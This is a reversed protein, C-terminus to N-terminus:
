TATSSCSGRCRRLRRRDADRALHRRPVQPHGQGAAALPGALLADTLDEGPRAYTLASTYNLLADFWVYITQEPDWPLPIGWQVSARSLSVDDLGAEIFSRAENYRSRPVCSTPAARRLARLLPDAFASLRFFWNREELFRLETGHIPCKGDVLENERYFAECADCYLGAYTGEYVHGNRACGSSSTRCSRRTAPTPPASSSTTPPRSTARWSASCPRAATSSSRRRSARRPPGSPRRRPTSTPARSSSSTRAGSGCTGRRSTPPSRRTRTASTRARTSTTSPRRSTSPCAPMTDVAPRAARRRRAPPPAAPRIANLGHGGGADVPDDAAAAQEGRGRVLDLARPGERPEHEARGDVQLRLGGGHERGQLAAPRLDDGGAVEGARLRRGDRPQLLAADLDDALLRGVRGAVAREEVVDHGAARRQQQVVAAVEEGAVGVPGPVAQEAAGLLRRGAAHRSTASRSRIPRGTSTILSLGILCNASFRWPTPWLTNSLKRRM